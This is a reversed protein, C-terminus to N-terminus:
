YGFLKPRIRYGEHSTEIIKQVAKPMQKRIKDPREHQENSILRGQVWAGYAVYLVELMQTARVTLDHWQQGIRIRQAAVLLELQETKYLQNGWADYSPAADQLLQFREKAVQDKKESDKKAKEAEDMAELFDKALRKMVQTQEIHKDQSSEAM